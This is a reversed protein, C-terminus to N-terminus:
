NNPCSCRALLEWADLAPQPVSPPMRRVCLAACTQAEDCQVEFSQGPRGNAPYPRRFSTAISPPFTRSTKEQHSTIVGVPALLRPHSARPLCNAWKDTPLRLRRPPCPPRPNCHSALDGQHQLHSHNTGGLRAGPEGHAASKDVPLRLRRPPCPPRSKPAPLWTRETSAIGAVHAQGIRSRRFLPGHGLLSRAPLDALFRRSVHQCASM